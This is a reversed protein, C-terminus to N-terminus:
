TSEVRKRKRRGTALLEVLAAVDLDGPGRAGSTATEKLLEVPELQMRRLLEVAAWAGSLVAGHTCQAGLDGCIAGEGAFHLRQEARAYLTRDEESAASAQFETYAGLAFPDLSWRTVKYLPPLLILEQDQPFMARLGKVVELVLEEDSLHEHQEWQADGWIHCLLQGRRGYKHLNM